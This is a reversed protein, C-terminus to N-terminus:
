DQSEDLLQNLDHIEHDLQRLRSLYQDDFRSGDQRGREIQETIESRRQELFEARRDLVAAIELQNGFRAIYDDSSPSDDTKRLLRAAAEIRAKALERQSALDNVERDVGDLERTLAQQRSRTTGGGRRLELQRLLAQRENYLRHREELLFQFARENSASVEEVEELSGDSVNVRTREKAFRLFQLPEYFHIRQGAAAWYEDILEPRPGQTKGREIRWWDDKGDDTVFILPKKSTAGLELIEKWIILDGYQNGNTKGADRYGPPTKAAYRAQGDKEIEARTDSSFGSGVKGSLLDSLREFTQEPNGEGAVWTEHGEEQRDIVETLRAVLSELEGNLETRDLSPHHKFENLTKIVGNKGSILADKVRKFVEATGSIVDLRREQFEFGVQHPVWLSDNLSELVRLFDDRTSPTYRFFNLLTNTDFVIM